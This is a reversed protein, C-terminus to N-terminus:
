TKDQTQLYKGCIKYFTRQSMFVLQNNSVGSSQNAKQLFQNDTVTSSDQKNLGSLNRVHIADLINQESYKCYMAIEDEDDCMEYFANDRLNCESSSRVLGPQQM